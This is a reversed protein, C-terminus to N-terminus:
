RTLGAQFPLVQKFDCDAGAFCLRPRLGRLAVFPSLALSRSLSLPGSNTRGKTHASLQQTDFRFLETVFTDM